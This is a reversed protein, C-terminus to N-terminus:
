VDFAPVFTWKGRDEFAYNPVWAVGFLELVVNSKLPKVYVEQVNVSQQSATTQLAAIEEQEKQAIEALQKEYLAIMQKSETVGAQATSTMRRKTMSSNVSGGSRTLNGLLGGSKKSGFVAKGVTNLWSGAEEMKRQNFATQDKELEMEEKMKRTEITERQKAYKARIKALDEQSAEARTTSCRRIFDEKSEGPTSALKNAPNTYLTLSYNRYIWDTFDKSLNKVAEEDNSPYQLDGFTAGPLPRTDFKTADLAQAQYDQWQV